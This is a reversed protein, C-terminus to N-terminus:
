NPDYPGILLGQWGFSGNWEPGIGGLCLSFPAPREPGIGAM